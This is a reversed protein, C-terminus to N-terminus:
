KISRLALKTLPTVLNKVYLLLYIKFVCMLMIKDNFITKSFDIYVLLRNLYLLKLYYIILYQCINNNDQVTYFCNLDFIKM